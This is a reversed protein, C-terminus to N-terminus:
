RVSGAVSVRYGGPRVPTRSVKGIRSLRDVSLFVQTRGIGILTTLDEINQAGKNRLLILMKRDVSQASSPQKILPKM